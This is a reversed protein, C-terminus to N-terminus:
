RSRLHDRGTRHRRRGLRHPRGAVARCAPRLRDALHQQGPGATRRGHVAHVHKANELWRLRFCQRSRAPGVERAINNKMGLGQSPWLSSDLTHQVWLMKGDFRGTHAMGMFPSLEPSNTSSTSRRRASGSSSERAWRSGLHPPAPLLLLRSFVRNDFRVRDGPQVGTLRLNSAEGEGDLLLTNGAGSMCYLQRGAAQGDLFRIGAGPLYGDSTDGLQILWRPTWQARWRARLGDGTDAPAAFEPSWGVGEEDTILDNATLVRAVTTETDILDAQVLGPQDFGVHGPETWAREFYRDERSVREAMSSWALWLQGMPQAIMFEDGRPFGLKYLMALQERQHTNLGAFPDGSGGPRMADVVDGVKDGLVRQTNFMAAFNPTGDRPRSWDGYDGDVDDGMFPLAADWVDPAYALCLPSRRAGGSGGFVYSHRPAVGLVQAAVFKSFRASEAAARWGYITADDGAKADKVDGIHGMNSEVMYGGLRFVMRRAQGGTVEGVAPGFGVDEHPRRQRGGLPQHHLRGRSVARSASVPVRIGLIPAPLGVTCMATRCRTERWDDVDIYPTGFFDDVVVYGSPDIRNVGGGNMLGGFCWYGQSSSQLDNDSWPLRVQTPECHRKKMWRAVSWYPCNPSWCWSPSAGQLAGAAAARGGAGSDLTLSAGNSPVVVACVAEGWRDDPVGIVACAAVGDVACVADEVEPSYINEGGSIIVDKKRDVLYLLGRGDLRGMDGTRCWETRRLTAQTAAADQWYGRFMCDSRVVIEGAQEWRTRRGRRRKMSVVRVRAGPFPFGM